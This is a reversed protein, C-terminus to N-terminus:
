DAGVNCEFARACRTAAVHQEAGAEIAGDVCIEFPSRPWHYMVIWTAAVIALAIVVYPKVTM